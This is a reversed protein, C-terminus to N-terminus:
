DKSRQIPPDAYFGEEPEVSLMFGLIGAPLMTVDRNSCHNEYYGRSAATM